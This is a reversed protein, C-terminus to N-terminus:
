RRVAPSELPLDAARWALFLELDVYEQAGFPYPEARMAANCFRLRRHLSGLTQWQLRYTPYGNGHGQSLTEGRLKKGANVEHCHHCALNMQGRRTYFYERGRDFAPANKGHIDVAYPQGDSLNTIAVTLALLDESEYAAAPLGVHQTRCLEIRQTLNIVRNADPDFRPYRTAVGRMSDFNAHCSVCHEQWAARGNDVWLLGPNGFDDEQLAQTELAQFEFGSEVASLTRETRASDTAKNPNDDPACANSIVFLTVLLTLRSRM